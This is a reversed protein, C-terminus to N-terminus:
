TQRDQEFFIISGAEQGSCKTNMNVHSINISDYSSMLVLIKSIQLYKSTILNM